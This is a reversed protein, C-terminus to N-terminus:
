VVIHNGTYGNVIYPMNYCTLMGAFMDCLTFESRELYKWECPQSYWLLPAKSNVRRKLVTFLM